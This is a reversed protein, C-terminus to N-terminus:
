RTDSTRSPSSRSTEGFPGRAGGDSALPPQDLARCRTSAPRNRSTHPDSWTSSRHRCVSVRPLPARARGRARSRVTRPATPRPGTPPHARTGSAHSKRLRPCIAAQPPIAPAVGTHPIEPQPEVSVAVDVDAPPHVGAFRTRLADPPPPGQHVALEARPSRSSGSQMPLM